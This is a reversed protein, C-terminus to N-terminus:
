WVSGEVGVNSDEALFTAALGEGGLTDNLPKQMQAAADNYEIAERYPPSQLSGRVKYGEAARGAALDICEREALRWVKSFSM